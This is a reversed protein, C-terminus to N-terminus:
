YVPVKMAQTKREDTWIDEEVTEAYQFVGQGYERDLEARSKKHRIGEIVVFM